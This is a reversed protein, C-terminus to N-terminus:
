EDSLLQSLLEGESIASVPIAHYSGSLWIEIGDKIPTALTDNFFSIQSLFASDIFKRMAPHRSCYTEMIGMDGATDRLMSRIRATTAEDIADYRLWNELKLYLDKVGKGYTFDYGDTPFIYFPIGFKAAMTVDSTAYFVNKRPLLGLSALHSNFIDNMVSSDMASLKKSPQVDLHATEDLCDVGRYLPRGLLRLSDLYHSCDTKIADIASALESHHPMQQYDMPKTM